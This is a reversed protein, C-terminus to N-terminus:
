RWRREIGFVGACGQNVWIGARNWGWTRGEVCPTGSTQRDLYARGGGGLDVGCFNYQYNDSACNVAFRQDWGPGPRWGGGGYDPGGAAVFRGACGRDVWLGRRDVGWTRGRICQADSLQRVLRADPWPADCRTYAYNRSACEVADGYGQAHVPAVPVVFLMVLSIAAFLRIIMVGEGKHKHRLVSGWTLTTPNKRARYQKPPGAIAVIQKREPNTL